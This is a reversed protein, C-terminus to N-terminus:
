RRSDHCHASHMPPRCRHVPPQRMSGISHLAVFYSAILPGSHVAAHDLGDARAPVRLRRDGVHDGVGADRPAGEVLLELVLFRAEERCVVDDDRASALQHQVRPTALVAPRVPHVSGAPRQEVVDCLLRLPRAQHEDVREADARARPLPHRQRRHRELAHQRDAKLRMRVADLERRQHDTRDDAADAVHGERPHVLPAFGVQQRQAVLHEVPDLGVARRRRPPQVDGGDDHGAIDLRLRRREQRAVVLTRAREAREDM